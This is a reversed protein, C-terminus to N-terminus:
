DRGNFHDRMEKIEQVYPVTSWPPDWEGEVVKKLVLYDTELILPHLDHEVCYELGQLIAKAEAVINTTVGLDVARTYVLDGVDNKECFGLSSPGPNEKSAGDTNCRALYHLTKNVEHIVRNTSVTGGNKGTNRKKWLEWTIIAPAAKSATPSTLFIHDIIKEQPHQCCWCRSMVIYGKRRWLDDIALKHRWLRWLFFSIKFPLGKTWIQKFEQNHNAKHRLIQWASFKGLPTPMWCPRDWYKGSGDYHVNHKIHDAIDEPFTQDILQENWVGLHRLELVEHLEEDIPFDPPLEHYLAGLGTWNEHWISTTGSKM